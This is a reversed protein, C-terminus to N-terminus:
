AKGPGISPSGAKFLPAINNHLPESDVLLGKDCFTQGSPVENVHLETELFMLNKLRDGPWRGSAGGCVAGGQHSQSCPPRTRECVLDEGSATVVSDDGGRPSWDKFRRISM